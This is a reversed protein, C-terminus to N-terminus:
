CSRTKTTHANKGTPSSNAAAKRHSPPTRFHVAPSKAFPSHKPVQPQMKAPINRSKCRGSWPPFAKGAPIEKVPPPPKWPPSKDKNYVPPHFFAVKKLPSGRFPFAELLPHFDRTPAPPATTQCITLPPRAPGSPNLPPIPPPLTKPSPASFLIDYFTM